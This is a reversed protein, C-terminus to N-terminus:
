SNALGELWERFRRIDEESEQAPQAGARTAGADRGPGSETSAAVRPAPTTHAVAGSLAAAARSDEPSVPANGFLNAFADDAYQYSNEDDSPTVSPPGAESPAVDSSTVQDSDDGAATAPPRMAGLTAFFERITIGRPEAPPAPLGEPKEEAPVEAPPTKAGPASPTSAGPAATEGAPAESDLTDWLPAEPEAEGTVAAAIPGNGMASIGFIEDTDESEDFVGTSWSDATDWLESSPQKDGVEDTAPGAWETVPAPEATSVPPVSSEESERDQEGAEVGSLETIRARIGADEPEREALQRYIELAPEIYGQQLYLEALTRTVIPTSEFAPTSRFGREDRAPEADVSAPSPGGEAEM